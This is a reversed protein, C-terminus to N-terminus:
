KKVQGSPTPTPGLVGESKDAPLIMKYYLVGALLAGLIPGAVYVFM